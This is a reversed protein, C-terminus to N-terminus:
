GGAIGLGRAAHTAAESRFAKLDKHEGAHVSNTLLVFYADNRPDIWMSVGTFGSHGYSDGSFITGRPASYPSEIDFGFGRRVGLSAGCQNTTMLRVTERSLIRRSGYMGGRLLMECFRAVEEATGFMGANGAVGGLARSRARPDHVRGRLWRGGERTTPAVRALDKARTGFRTDRFRLPTFIREQAARDLTKGLRREIAGQLLMYGVDSYTFREGPRAELSERAIADYLRTKGGRYDEIPNMPPFGGTHTLLMSLKVSGAETGRTEELHRELPDDLDLGGASAREVVLAATAMPKTLSALDFITQATMPEVRPKLARQGLAARHVAGDSRGAVFVAGPVLGAAIRSELFSHLPAFLHPTEAKGLSPGRVRARAM